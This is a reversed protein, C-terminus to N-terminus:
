SARHDLGRDIDIAVREDRALAVLRVTIRNHEGHRAHTANRQDTHEYGVVSCVVSEDRFSLAGPPSDHHHELLGRTTVLEQAALGAPACM